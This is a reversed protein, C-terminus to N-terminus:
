KIRPRDGNPLEKGWERTKNIFLKREIEESLTTGLRNLFAICVIAVDAIEEITDELDETEFLEPIEEKLKEVIALITANPFTKQHWEIVKQEITKM